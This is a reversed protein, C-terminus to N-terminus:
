RPVGDRQDEEVRVDRHIQHSRRMGV